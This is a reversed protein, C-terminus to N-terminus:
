TFKIKLSSDIVGSFVASWEDGSFVPKADTMTGTTIVDGSALPRQDAFCELSELLYRIASVPGDLVNAGTGEESFSGNQFLSVHAKLLDQEINSKTPIRKGVLLSGHLGGAVISDTVSFLWKPYISDVIELGPAVWEICAAIEANNAGLSPATKLCVVIEPEIRPECFSNLSVDMEDGVYYKLSSSTIDGWIPQDVGYKAWIGRNTFGIKRGILPSADVRAKAEGAIKYAMKQSFEIGGRKSFPEIQRASSIADSIESIIVGVDM